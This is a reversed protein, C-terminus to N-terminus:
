QSINRKLHVARSFNFRLITIASFLIARVVNFRKCLLYFALFCFLLRTHHKYCLDSMDFRRELTWVRERGEDLLCSVYDFLRQTIAKTGTFSRFNVYLFKCNFSNLHRRNM